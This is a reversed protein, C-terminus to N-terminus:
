KSSRAQVVMTFVREGGEAGVGDANNVRHACFVECCLCELILIERTINCTDRNDYVQLWICTMHREINNRPM